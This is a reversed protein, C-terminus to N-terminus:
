EGAEAKRKKRQRRISEQGEEEVRLLRCPVLNPARQPCRAVEGTEPVELCFGTQLVDPKGSANILMVTPGWLKPPLPEGNRYAQLCPLGLHPTLTRVIPIAASPHDDVPTALRVPHNALRTDTWYFVVAIKVKTESKITDVRAVKVSLM